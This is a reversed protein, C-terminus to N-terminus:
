EFRQKPKQPEFQTGNQLHQHLSTFHMDCLLKVPAQQQKVRKMNDVFGMFLGFSCHTPGDTQNRQGTQPEWGLVTPEQEFHLDTFFTWAETNPGNEEVQTYIIEFLICQM